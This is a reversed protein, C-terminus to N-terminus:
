DLEAHFFAVCREFALMASPAHHAQPDSARMFAHGGDYVHLEARGGAASIQSVLAEARAPNAFADERAFHAQVPGHTLPPDMYSARPVGYFPAFASAEPVHCASVFTIAGGMCFGVVGIRGSCRADAALWRATAAVRTAAELSNMANMLAFAEADTTAVQGDYVDVAAVVFGAAAFQAAMRDIEPTLGYWEHVMVLGPRAPGTPAPTLHARFSTGDPATLTHEQM